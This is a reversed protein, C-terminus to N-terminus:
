LFRKYTKPGPKCWRRRVPHERLPCHQKWAGLPAWVWHKKRGSVRHQASGLGWSVSGWYSSVRVRSQPWVTCAALRPLGKGRSHRPPPFVKPGEETGMRRHTWCSTPCSGLDPNRSHYMVGSFLATWPVTIQGDEETGVLAPHGLFLSLPGERSTRKSWRRWPFPVPHVHGCLTLALPLSESGKPWPCHSNPRLFDSM